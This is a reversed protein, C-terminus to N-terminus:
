DRSVLVVDDHQVRRYVIVVPVVEAAPDIGLEERAHSVAAQIQRILRGDGQKLRKIQKRRQRGLDLLLGVNPLRAVVPLSPQSPEGSDM